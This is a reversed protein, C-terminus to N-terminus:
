LSIKVYYSNLAHKVGYLVAPLSLLGRATEWECSYLYSMQVCLGPM